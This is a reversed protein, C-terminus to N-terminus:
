MRKEISKEVVKINDQGYISYLKKLLIGGIQVNRNASLRKIAKPQRVYIVVSDNGDSDALVDFLEAERSQYAEVTEFQIWLERAFAARFLYRTIMMLCPAM